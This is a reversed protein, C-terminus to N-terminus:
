DRVLYVSQGAHRAVRAANPGLLYDRLHPRHALMVILDCELKDAIRIIEDYITGHSVHGKVASPDRAHEVIAGRLAERAKELVEKERDKPFFSGVVPMNYDPLVYLMHIEGGFAGSLKEAQPMLRAMADAEGLDVPVLIKKTM